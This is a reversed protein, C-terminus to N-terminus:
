QIAKKGDLLKETDAICKSLLARLEILWLKCRVFFYDASNQPAHRIPSRWHFFQGHIKKSQAFKSPCNNFHFEYLMLYTFYLYLPCFTLPCFPMAYIDHWNSFHWQSFYWHTFHWYTFHYMTPSIGIPFIDTPFDTPGFALPCFTLLYFALPCFILPCITLPRFVLLCVYVRWELNM